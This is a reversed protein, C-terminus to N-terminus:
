SPSRITATKDVLAPDTSIVTGAPHSVRAPEAVEPIRATNIERTAPTPPVHLSVFDATKLLDDLSTFEAGIAAEAAPKRTRSAYLIRLGFGLARCAMAGGIAVLGVIGLTAGHIDTGLYGTPSWTKWLGARADRDGRAVQRAAAMLLAFALDATTEALVGPTNTLWVGADAAVAPDVNDYGVAMNSIVKLSHSAAIAQADIRDTVMTLAADATALHAVLDAAPPPLEGPWLDVAHGAEALRDLADGPVARTVFVSGM